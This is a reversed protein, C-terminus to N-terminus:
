QLGAWRGEFGGSPVVPQAGKILSGTNATSSAASADQQAPQAKAKPKAADAVQPTQKQPTAAVEVKPAETKTPESKAPKLGYLVAGPPGPPQQADSKQKFLSAFFGPHDQDSTAASAVQSQPASPQAGSKADFLNGFMNHSSSAAVDQRPGSLLPTSNGPHVPPAHLHGENDMFPQTTELKAVFVRNMGGDTGL